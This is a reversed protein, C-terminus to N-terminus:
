RYTDLNCGKAKGGEGGSHEEKAEHSTKRFQRLAIQHLSMEPNLFLIITSTRCEFETFM